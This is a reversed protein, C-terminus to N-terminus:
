YLKENYIDLLLKGNKGQEPDGRYITVGCNVPKEDRDLRQFEKEGFRELNARLALIWLHHTIVLVDQENYDRALTNVMSRARERVDPVSEGQPYRYWYPGARDRLLEQDPDMIQFIRWDNYIAALGHEQERLREDEVQKVGKLEPWGVAMFGLTNVTRDYPSVLVVDPLTIRERLRAGTIEAQKEGAPTMTTDHEGVKLVYKGSNIIQRALRRAEEPDKKRRKYAEKFVIYDPDKEKQGKLVNYASEGHRVVTLTNPWKM